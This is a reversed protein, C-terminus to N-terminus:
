RRAGIAEISMGSSGGLAVRDAGDAAIGAFLMPTDTSVRQFAGSVPDAVLLMARSGCIVIRGDGLVTAGNLTSDTGTDAKQWTAGQDASQYVTGRLGFAFLRKENGVIGFFSGAYGTQLRKFQGSARDLRFVTGREGAIYVEGGIGRIANLNLFDPNDVHELGPQWTRGGDNTVAFSGFSGVAYGHEANDFWVDLDEQKQYPAASTDGRAAASRYYAVFRENSIRGDLQKSWNMGGNSTHLIVGDHGVAWGESPTPFAVATLDSQVPSPVQRWSHGHDDSVVIVGRQGVGVLRSGASAVATMPRTGPSVATEAPADLPDVFAKLRGAAPEVSTAAGLVPVCALAAVIATMCHVSRFTM